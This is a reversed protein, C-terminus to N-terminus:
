CKVRVNKMHFKQVLMEYLFSARLVNILNVAPTLKVLMRCAAIKYLLTKVLKERSVTQTQLKNAYSNQGL